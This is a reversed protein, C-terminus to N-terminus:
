LFVLFAEDFEGAGDFADFDSHQHFFAGVADATAQAATIRLETQVEAGSFEIATAM